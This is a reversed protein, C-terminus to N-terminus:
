VLAPPPAGGRAAGDAAVGDLETEPADPGAAALAEVPPEVAGAVDPAGEDPAPEAAGAAAGAPWHVEAPLM